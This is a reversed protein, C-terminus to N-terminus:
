RSTAANRSHATSVPTKEAPRPLDETSLHFSSIRALPSFNEMASSTELRVAGTVFRVSSNTLNPRNSATCPLGALAM